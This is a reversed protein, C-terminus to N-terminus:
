LEGERELKEALECRSIGVSNAEDRMECAREEVPKVSWITNLYIADPNKIRERLWDSRLQSAMIPNKEAEIQALEDVNCILHMAQKM